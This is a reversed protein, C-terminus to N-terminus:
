SNINDIQKIYDAIKNALNNSFFQNESEVMVRIVQETGSARVMLRGKNSVEFEQSKIFNIINKNQLIFVKDKVKVNINCQEYLKVDLKESLKKNELCCIYALFLSSLIGDGTQMFEKLIIHGSQEGGVIIGQEDMKESVFKDGIDARLLEIGNKYLAKEIGMNTHKTGVVKSPLLKGIKKYFMSFIYVLQDGTVIEGNESVAVLRDSDGDYAFGFDAKKNLVSKQLRSTFLAGCNQNINVGNPKTGISIVKAGKNKFLKKAIKFSAGNSSDLVITKGILNFDFLKDLYNYYYNVLYPKHYYRGVQNFCVNKQNLFKKELSNEELESIKKGYKNFIKIGNYKAPNHSASIVVGYDFGIKSVLYSVGATPCIGINTVNAGVSMAGCAFSLGLVDCTLRTDCGIIIKLNEGCRGLANGCAFAIKENLEEGYIGRIGDTGFFVGM